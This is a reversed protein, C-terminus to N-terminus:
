EVEQEADLFLGIVEKRTLLGQENHLFRMNKKTWNERPNEVVVIFDVLSLNEGKPHHIVGDQKRISQMKGPTSFTLADTGKVADVVDDFHTWYDQLCLIFGGLAPRPSLQFKGEELKSLIRKKVRFADLMRIQSTGQTSWFGRSVSSLYFTVKGYPMGDSHWEIELRENPNTPLEGSHVRDEIFALFKKAAEENLPYNFWPSVCYCNNPIANIRIRLQDLIRRQEQDEESEVLTLVEVFITEANYSIGIDAVKPKVTPPEWSCAM